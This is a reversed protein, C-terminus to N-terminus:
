DFYKTLANCLVNNSYRVMDTINSYSTFFFSNNNNHYYYYNDKNNYVKM